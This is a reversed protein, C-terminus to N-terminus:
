ETPEQRRRTATLHIGLLRYARAFADVVKQTKAQAAFTPSAPLYLVNGERRVLVNDVIVARMLWAATKEDSCPVGIWGLCRSPMLALGTTQRIGRELQDVVVRYKDPATCVEEATAPEALTADAASGYVMAAMRGRQCSSMHDTWYHCTKALAVVVNKIEKDLRFHPGPLCFSCVAIM